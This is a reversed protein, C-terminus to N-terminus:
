KRGRPLRKGELVVDLDIYREIVPPVRYREIIFTEYGGAEVRLRYTGAKIQIEYHGQYLPTFSLDKKDSGTFIIKADGIPLGVRDRINGRVTIIEYWKKGSNSIGEMYGDYKLVGDLTRVSGGIRNEVNLVFAAPLGERRFAIAYKGLALEMRYRGNEDAFTSTRAGEGENITAVIEAGRLMRGEEDSVTGALFFSEKPDLKELVIDFKQQGCNPFTIDKTFVAFGPATIVLRYQERLSQHEPFTVTWKERAMENQRFFQHPQREDKGLPRTHVRLDKLQEGAKDTIVLTTTYQGCLQAFNATCFVALFIIAILFRHFKM